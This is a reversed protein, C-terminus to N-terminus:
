NKGSVDAQRVNDPFGLAMPGRIVGSDKVWRAGGDLDFCEVADGRGVYVHGREVLVTARGTSALDKTWLTRGTTYDLCYLTRGSPVALVRGETVELAVAGFGGGRLNNKWVPEGTEADFACVHGEVAVILLARYEAGSERYMLPPRLM